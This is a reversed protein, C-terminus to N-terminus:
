RSRRASSMHSSSYARCFVPMRPRSLPPENLRMRRQRSRVEQDIRRALEQAPVGREIPHRLIHEREGDRPHFEGIERLLAFNERRPEARRRVEMDDLAADDATAELIRARFRLRRDTGAFAKRNTRQRRTTRRRLDIVCQRVREAVLQWAVVEEFQAPARRFEFAEARPGDGLRQLLRERLKRANRGAHPPVATSREVEDPSTRRSGTVHAPSAGSESASVFILSARTRVTTTTPRSLSGIPMNM